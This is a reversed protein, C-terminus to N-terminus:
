VELLLLLPIHNNCHGHDMSPSVMEPLPNVSFAPKKRDPVFASVFFSIGGPAETTLPTQLYHFNRKYEVTLVFRAGVCVFMSAVAISAPPLLYEALTYM